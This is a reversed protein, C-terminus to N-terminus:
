RDHPPKSDPVMVPPDIDPASVARRGEGYIDMRGGSAHQGYNTYPNINTTTQSHDPASKITLSGISMSGVDKFVNYSHSM